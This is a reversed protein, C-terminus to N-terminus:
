DGVGHEADGRRGAGGVDGAGVKQPPGVVEGGLDVLALVALVDASPQTVVRDGGPLGGLARSGSPSLVSVLLDAVIDHLNRAVLQVTGLNTTIVVLASRLNNLAADDLAADSQRAPQVQNKVVAGAELEPM